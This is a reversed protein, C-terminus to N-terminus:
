TITEENRTCRLYKIHGFTSSIYYLMQQKGGVEEPVIECEGNTVAAKEEADKKAPKQKDKKSFSFSRFSLFRKKSKEKKAKKASDTAPTSAANADEGAEVVEKSENLTTATTDNVNETENGHEVIEPLKEDTSPSVIPVDGAGGNEVAEIAVSQDGKETAIDKENEAEDKDTQKQEGVQLNRVVFKGAM